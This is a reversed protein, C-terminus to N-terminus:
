PYYIPESALTRDTFDTFDTTFDERFHAVRASLLVFAGCSQEVLGSKIEQPDLQHDRLMQQATFFEWFESDSADPDQRKKTQRLIDELITLDSPQRLSEIAFRPTQQNLSGSQLTVRNRM